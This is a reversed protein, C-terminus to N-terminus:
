FEIWIEIIILHDEAAPMKRAMEISVLLPNETTRINLTKLASLIHLMEDRVVGDGTCDPRLLHDGADEQDVVRGGGAWDVHVAVPAVALLCCLQQVALEIDESRFLM